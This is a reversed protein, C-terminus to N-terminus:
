IRAEVGGKIVVRKKLEKELEDGEKGVVAGFIAKKQEETVGERGEVRDWYVECNYVKIQDRISRNIEDIVGGVLGVSKLMRVCEDCFNHAMGMVNHGRRCRPCKVSYVEADVKGKEYRANLMAKKNEAYSVPTSVM